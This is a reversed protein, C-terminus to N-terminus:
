RKSILSLNTIGLINEKEQKSKSRSPVNRLVLTLYSVVYRKCLRGLAHSINV